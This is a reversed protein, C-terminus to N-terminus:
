GKMQKAYTTLLKEEIKEDEYESLEEMALLTYLLILDTSLLCGQRVGREISISESIEEGVEVVAKQQWHLKAM